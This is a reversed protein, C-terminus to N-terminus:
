GRLGGRGGRLLTVGVGLVLIALLAAGGGTAPLTPANPVAGSGGPRRVGVGGAAGPGFVSMASAGAPEMSLSPTALGGLDAGAPLAALNGRLGELSRTVDNVAATDVGTLTALEALTADILAGIEALLGDVADTLELSEVSLGLGTVSAEAVRNGDVIEDDSTVVAPAQIDVAGGLPEALPLAELLDALGATLQTAVEDLDDCVDVPVATGLVTVDGVSCLATARAEAATALTSVGLSVDSLALIETDALDGVLSELDVALDGNTALLGDLLAQLDDLLGNVVAVADALAATAGALATRATTAAGAAPAVAARATDIEGALRAVADQLTACEPPAVPLGCPLGALRTQATSRAAELDVVAKEAAALSADAAAVTATAQTVAAQATDVAASAEGLAQVAEAIATVLAANGGLGALDLDLAGALELVVNLPLAALVESGLLDGLTLSLSSVVVGNTARAAKADADSAIGAAPAAAGLDLLTLDATVAEALSHAADADAEAVLRAASVTGLGGPLTVTPGEAVSAGGSEATIEQGALAARTLAYPKGAGAENLRRDPSTSAYSTVAGLVGTDLPGLVLRGLNLETRATGSDPVQASKAAAAPAMALTVLVCCSLLALMRKPM